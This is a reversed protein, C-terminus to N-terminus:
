AAASGGDAAEMDAIDAEIKALEAKRKAIMNDYQLKSLGGMDHRKKLLDMNKHVDARKAELIQLERRKERVTEQARIEQKIQAAQEPKKEAREELELEQMTSSRTRGRMRKKVARQRASYAGLAIALLLVGGGIWYYSTPFLPAVPAVVVTAIPVLGEGLLSTENTTVNFSYSANGEALASVNFISGFFTTTANATEPVFSISANAFALMGSTLTANVGTITTNNAASLQFYLSGNGGPALEVGAPTTWYTLTYNGVVVEAADAPPIVPKGEQALALPSAILLAALALAALGHLSRM